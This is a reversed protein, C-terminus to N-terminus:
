LWIVATSINLVIANKGTCYQKIPLQIFILSKGFQSVTFYVQVHIKLLMGWSHILHNCCIYVAYAMSSMILSFMILAFFGCFSARERISKLMNHRQIANYM